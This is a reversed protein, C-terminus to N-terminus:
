PLIKEEEATKGLFLEDLRNMDMKYTEKDSARNEDSRWYVVDYPEWVHAKYIKIVPPNDGYNSSIHCSYHSIDEVRFRKNKLKIFM